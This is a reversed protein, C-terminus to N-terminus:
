IQEKRVRGPVGSSRGDKDPRAQPKRQQTTGAEASTGVPREYKRDLYLDMVAPALSDILAFLHGIRPLVVSRSEREVGRVIAEALRQPSIVRRINGVREPTDGYLVHERFKTDVIGPYVNMVHIGTGRLERRLGHGISDLAYKTACYMTAWPLTVKAGISAVNVVIGRRERLMHPVVLQAMGLAAFVNVDFIRKALDLPALYSPSYLGVGANNVLIDIRGFADLTRAVINDRVTADTLDGATAITRKGPQALPGESKLATLSLLAGRKAFAEACAAGIGESAGTIIVVKEDIRM